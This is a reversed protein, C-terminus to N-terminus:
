VGLVGVGGGCYRGGKVITEPYGGERWVDWNVIKGPTRDGLIRHLFYIKKKLLLSRTKMNGPLSSM